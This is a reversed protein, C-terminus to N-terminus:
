AAAKEKSMGQQCKGRKYKIMGVEVVQRKGRQSCHCKSNKYKTCPGCSAETCQNRPSRLALSSHTFPCPVETDPKQTGAYCRQWVMAQKCKYSVRM